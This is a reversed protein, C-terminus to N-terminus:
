KPKVAAAAAGGPGCALGGVKGDQGIADCFRALTEALYKAATAYEEEEDAREEAHTEPDPTLYLAPLLTDRVAAWAEPSFAPFPLLADVKGKAAISADIRLAASAPTTGPAVPLPALRTAADPATHAIRESGFLGRWRSVLKYLLKGPGSPAALEAPTMEAALAAVFTTPGAEPLPDDGENDDNAADDDSPQQPAAATRSASPRAFPDLALPAVLYRWAAVSAGAYSIQRHPPPLLPPACPGQQRM